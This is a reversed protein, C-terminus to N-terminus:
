GDETLEITSLRERYLKEYRRVMKSVSFRQSVIRRAVEAYRGRRGEHELMCLVAESISNPDATRILRGSKGDEIVSPIGGVATSIIPLSAAMAELVIM